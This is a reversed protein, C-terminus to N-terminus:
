DGTLLRRGRAIYDVIRRPKLKRWGLLQRRLDGIFTRNLSRWNRMRGSGRTLELRIDWVDQGGAAPAITLRVDQRVGLDYPALWVTASVGVGQGGGDRFARLEGASFHGISGERHADLYEHLFMLVGPASAATATFPLADRITEGRPAPVKWTRRSAPAALRGALYAPVTSSLMVVGLVMLMVAVAHTGSYNLTLGGLWGLGSLATAAAQGGVYGFVSGMLGYTAAEALFMAAVHLPALGLSTYVYVDRRREAIASLMTNLVILGGIVLPILLGKGPAALLPVSVAARVGGGPSSYYIPFAFRRTLEEALEGAQRPTATGVAVSRLAARPLGALVDPPVVVVSRSSLAPLEPGEQVAGADIEGALVDMESRNLLKRQEATIASVDVPLLPEGDMDRARRDLAAPDFTAIVKLEAGAVIVSRGPAAGIQEAADRPLYCGGGRAFAPWDRLVEALGTLEGEGATLGIAAQLAVQRGSEADRVHLRWRPEDGHVWWTRECVSGRGALVNALRLRAQESMPRRGPQRILVGTYPARGALAYQRQGTYTGTSTFCMLCFTILAVASATLATRLRRKRMNAIGMHVATVLVGFRSTQAAASEARGSRLEQLSSEFRGYIAAIVLASISLIGFAMIIMLPQSGIRFAPHFSWLLATMAAFIALMAAIQRYIHPTAILLREMAFAFPVMMLLLFIAGRITDNALDGVAQYVRVENALAGTAARAAGAGDNAATADSAAALLRGTRRQLDEVAASAIGARRYNDLRRRDLRFMDGAAQRLPDGHFGREAPFGRIMEDAARATEDGGALNLLAARNRTAGARLALFWRTGPEVQAAMEGDALTFNLRQPETGRGADFLTGMPLPLLFRPDFLGVASLERCTFAVGRLPEGGGQRLDWNVQSGKGVKRLDLARVIRGDAALKYSQLFVQTCPQSARDYVPLGDFVFRGDAGTRAFRERRVGGVLPMPPSNLRAQGGGASGYLLCTLYGEMPLRPVPEGPSRDVVYGEVRRWKPAAGPGAAFDTRATMREILRRTAAVQPGLRGWDLEGPVDRPTDVRRRPADLTAWTAAPTGFSAAASTMTATEGVTYSDGKELGRLPRLDVARGMAGPWLSAAEQGAVQSLWRRLAMGNTTEESLAFRCYSMPGAAVGADSLDVALLFEVPRRAGPPDGLAALLERRLAARAAIVALSERAEALQAAIRRRAAARLTEALATDAPSAPAGTLLHQQAAFLEARRAALAAAERRLRRAEDGGAACLRLRKPHLETEIAVIQRAAEDKVYGHLARYASRHMEGAPAPLRDLAAALREHRAYQEIREAEAARADRTEEDTVALSLLMERVGLRAFAYADFFAVLLPRAPRRAALRRVLNLAFAADVAADAGCALDPVVSMADAQVGVALARRAAAGARAPPLLAWIDTARATRWEARAYLHGARASGSRLAEALPGDPVYFRPASLPLPSLHSRAHRQQVSPSGLLIIARAGCNWVDKWRQGGTLEMVAIQGDLDRVPLQEPRGQGAYVLRGDIGGPPTTNLRVGAPWLPWVRQIGAPQGDTVTLAAEITRPVVVPFRHTWVRAGAVARLDALLGAIARDHGDTGVVRSPYACLRATDARVARVFAEDDSAPPAAAAAAAVLLMGAAGVLGLPLRSRKPCDVIALRCDDIRRGAPM